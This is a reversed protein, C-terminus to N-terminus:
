DQRTLKMAASAKDIWSFAPLPVSLIQIENLKRLLIM